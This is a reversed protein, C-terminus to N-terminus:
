PRAFSQLWSPMIHTFLRRKSCVFTGVSLVLAGVVKSAIRSAALLSVTLFPPFIWTYPKSGIHTYQLVFMICHVSWCPADNYLASRDCISKVDGAAWFAMWHYTSKALACTPGDGNSGLGSPAPLSVGMKWDLRRAM